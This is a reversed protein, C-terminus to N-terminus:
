SYRDHRDLLQLAAIEANSHKHWPLNSKLLKGTGLDIRPRLLLRLIVVPISVLFPVMVFSIWPAQNVDILAPVLFVSTIVLVLFLPLFRDLKYGVPTRALHRVTMAASQRDYPHQWEGPTNGPNTMTGRSVQRLSTPTILGRVGRMCLGRM